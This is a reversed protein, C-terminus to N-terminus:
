GSFGISELHKVVKSEYEYRTELLVSISPRATEPDYHTRIGDTKREEAHFLKLYKRPSVGEFPIFEVKKGNEGCRDVDFSIADNHLKLALSKEYPEIYYVKSIGAAIIHRACNHCPFTTCFLSAGKLSVAGNRAVSIIADMEAHIARCFEILSNLRSLSRIDQNIKKASSGTGIHSEVIKEIDNLIRNKTENNKCKGGYKYMCRSDDDGDETTYLGGGAKPVDNCGTSILNGDQDIIAAGVQRSLCGSRVAASQAHFMANEELKPTITKDGMMIQVYRKLSPKLSDVNEKSNTVFFDSHLITKLMQQGYKEGESKDRIMLQTTKVPDIDKQDVLRKLRIDEPCLVGFLYFMDRYVTQLLEVESPNKLSDIITVHRRSKRNSKTEDNDSSEEGYQNEARDRILAIEKIVLQSLIERSIKKRFGNGASQLLAIRDAANLNEVKENLDIKPLWNEKLYEDENLENKIQELYRVILTSIKITTVRYKYESFIEGIKNAITSTGSGISGCLALVLEETQREKIEGVITKGKKISSKKNPVIKRVTEVM